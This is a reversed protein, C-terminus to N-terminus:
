QRLLAARIRAILETPALRGGLRDSAGRAAEDFERQLASSPVVRRMGQREFIGGMLEDSSHRGAEDLHAVLKASASRIAEKDHTSLPDYSGQSVVICGVFYSIVLDLVFHAQANWQFALAATPTTMFGDIRGEDFARAADWVPLPVPTFGMSSLAIQNGIEEDWVWLRARELDGLSRISARTFVEHPGLLFVGLEVLGKKAFESTATPGIQAIATRADQWSRLLGPVSFVRISPALDDCRSGLGLGDLPGGVM